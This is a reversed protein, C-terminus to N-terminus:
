SYTTIWFSACCSNQGGEALADEPTLTHFAAEEVLRAGIQKKPVELIPDHVLDLAYVWLGIVANQVAGDQVSVASVEHNLLAVGACSSVSWDHGFGRLM